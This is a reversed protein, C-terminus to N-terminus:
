SIIIHSPFCLCGAIKMFVEEMTTMSLGCASVGLTSPKEELQAFLAAFSGVASLPLQFSMEGAAHSLEKCEPVHHNVVRRVANVDSTPTRV